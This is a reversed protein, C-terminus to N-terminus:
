HRRATPPTPNALGSLPGALAKLHTLLEKNDQFMKANTAAAAKAQGLLERIRDNAAAYGKAQNRLEAKTRDLEAQLLATEPYLAKLVWAKLRNM